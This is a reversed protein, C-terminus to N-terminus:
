GLRAVILAELQDRRLPGFHRSDTSQTVNDGLLWIQHSDLKVIRKLLPRGNQCAIVVHGARPRFWRWGLLTEGPRYHPLMSDGAVRYIALPWRM